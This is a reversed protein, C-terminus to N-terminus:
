RTGWHQKPFIPTEGNGLGEDTALLIHKIVMRGEPSTDTGFNLSSFPVQAGARSNHVYIGEYTMFNENDQVTIDYVYEDQSNWKTKESVKNIFINTLKTDECEGMLIADELETYRVAKGRRISSVSSMSLDYKPISFSTNDVDKIGVMVSDEGSVSVTHMDIRPKLKDFGNNCSRTNYHPSGKLSLIMFAIGAQLEKNVTSAESYNKDSRGDCRFYAKLFAEKINDTAFMIEIPIHKGNSGRGFKEAVMFAIRRGVGFRIDKECVGTKSNEYYTVTDNFTTGFAKNSLERLEEFSVKGCATICLTGSDGMLSGDAMYYGMLEAFEETIIVHSAKYPSDKRVNAYHEVCIDYNVAPTKIGRPSIINQADEPYCDTILRGDITMVKHNSTVSVKAGQNSTLTVIERNNDMKQAHTIFKFEAKGTKKNLSVVMFRNPEFKETLEGIAWSKFTNNIIDLVWLRERYPLCHMSNLNHIVAEMAQHTADETFKLATELLRTIEGGKIGKSYKTEILDRVYDLNSLILRNEKVYQKLHDKVQENSMNNSNRGEASSCEPYRICMVKYLEKVFTKAVGPAM